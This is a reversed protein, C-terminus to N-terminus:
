TRHGQLLALLRVPPPYVGRMTVSLNAVGKPFPTPVPMPKHCPISNISSTPGRKQLQQEVILFSFARYPKCPVPLSSPDNGLLCCRVNENWLLQTRAMLESRAM